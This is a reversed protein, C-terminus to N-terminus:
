LVLSRERVCTWTSTDAENTQSSGAGRTKIGWWVGVGSSDTVAQRPALLTAPTERCSDLPESLSCLGVYESCRGFTSGSDHLREQPPALNFRSTSSSSSFLSCGHINEGRVPMRVFGGRAWRELRRRLPLYGAPLADKGRVKVHTHPHKDSMQSSRSPNFEATKQNIRKDAIGARLQSILSSATLNILMRYRILTLDSLSPTLIREHPSPSVAESSTSHQPIEWCGAQIWTCLFWIALTKKKKKKKPNM